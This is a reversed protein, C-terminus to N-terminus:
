RDEVAEGTGRPGLTRSALLVPVVAAIV